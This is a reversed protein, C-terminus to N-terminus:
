SNRPIKHCFESTPNVIWIEWLRRMNPYLARNLLGPLIILIFRFVHKENLRKQLTLSHIKSTKGRIRRANPATECEVVAYKSEDRATVIGLIDPRYLSWALREDPSEPPEVYVRYGDAKLERVAALKLLEHMKGEL